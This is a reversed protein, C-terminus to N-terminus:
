SKYILAKNKGLIFRDNITKFIFFDHPTIRIGYQKWVM